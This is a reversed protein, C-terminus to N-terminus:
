SLSILHNLSLFLFVLLTLVEFEVTLINEPLKIGPSRQEKSQQLAQFVEFDSLWASSANQVEMQLVPSFHIKPKILVVQCPASATILIKNRSLNM